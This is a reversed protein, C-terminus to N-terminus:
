APLTVCVTTEQSPTSTIALHGGYLEALRKAIILGMGAGQQELVKRDFQMHAGIRAIQDPSMGRGRNSIVLKFVADNVVSRVRVPTGPNSFKFANDALETVIRTLSDDSIHAIAAENELELDAEREFVQALQMSQAAIIEKTLDCRRQRCAEAKKPDMYLLEIHVYELYNDILHQLRRASDRIGELLQQREGQDPVTAPDILLDVSGLIGSLPTRLEHPLSWGINSRLEELKRESHKELAIKKELRSNIAVILESIQFPKTLYDDAGLAMGHRLDAKDAKATLFIFPTAATASNQRLAQLVGYGDLEPMMVDCIILDPLCQQAVQIGATGNEAGIADFGEFKLAMLTEERIASTDEIVLIKKM